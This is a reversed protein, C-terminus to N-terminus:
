ISECMDIHKTYLQYKKNDVTKKIPTHSEIYPRICHSVNDLVMVSKQVIDLCPVLKLDQQKRPSHFAFRMPSKAGVAEGYPAEGYDLEGYGDNLLLSSGLSNAEAPGYPAGRKSSGYKRRRATTSKPVLNSRSLLDSNPLLQIDSKKTFDYFKFESPKM